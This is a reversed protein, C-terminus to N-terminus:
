AKAKVNSLDVPEEPPKDGRLLKVSRRLSAAEEEPVTALYAEFAAPDKESLKVIYAVNELSREYSNIFFRVMDGLKVGSASGMMSAAVLLASTASAVSSLGKALVADYAAVAAQTIQENEGKKKNMADELMKRIDKEDM